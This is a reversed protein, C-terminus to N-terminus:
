LLGVSLVCLAMFSSFKCNQCIPDSGAAKLWDDHYGVVVGRNAGSSVGSGVGCGVSCGVGSGLFSCSCLFFASVCLSLHM